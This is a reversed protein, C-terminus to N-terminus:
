EWAQSESSKALHHRLHQISLFYTQSTVSLNLALTGAVGVWRCVLVQGWYRGEISMASTVDAALTFVPNAQTQVSVQASSTGHGDIAQTSPNSETVSLAAPMANTATPM